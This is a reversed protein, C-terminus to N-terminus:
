SFQLIIKRITGEVLVRERRYKYQCTFMCNRDFLDNFITSMSQTSVNVESSNCVCIHASHITFILM